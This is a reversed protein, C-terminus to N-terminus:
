PTSAVKCHGAECAVQKPPYQPACEPCGQADCVLASYAPEDSVAVLHEDDTPGGCECCATTRVRCDAENTCTTSAHALLDVVQCTGASCTAVLTPDNPMYCAPCGMGDCVNSRYASAKGANVAISDERTAGGCSGCCSKSIVVCDANAGCAHLDSSGGGTGGSGGDGESQGGCGVLILLAMGALERM